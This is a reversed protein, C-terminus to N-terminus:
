PGVGMLRALPAGFYTIAVTVVYITVSVGWLVRSQLQGGDPPCRNAPLWRRELEGVMAARSVTLLVGTVVFLWGRHASLFALGPLATAASAVAGGLGLAGLVAPLTCCTTAGLASLLASAFSTRAVWKTGDL